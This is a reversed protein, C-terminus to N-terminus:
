PGFWCTSNKLACAPDQQQHLVHQNREHAFSLPGHATLVIDLWQLSTVFSAFRSASRIRM